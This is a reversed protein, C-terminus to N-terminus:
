QAASFLQHRGHFMFMSIYFCTSKNIVEDPKHYVTLQASPKYLVLYDLLSYFHLGVFHMLVPM